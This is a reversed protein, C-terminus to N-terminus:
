GVGDKKRCVEPIESSDVAIPEMRIDYYPQDQPLEFVYFLGSCGRLADTISHYDFPDSHFIKLRNPDAFIGNLQENGINTLIKCCLPLLLTLFVAVMHNLLPM